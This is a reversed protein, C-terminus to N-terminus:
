EELLAFPAQVKAADAPSLGLATCIRQAQKGTSRLDGRATRHKDIVIQYQAAAAAVNRRLLHVEGLTCSAWM